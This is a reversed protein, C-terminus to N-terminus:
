GEAAENGIPIFQRVPGGGPEANNGALFDAIGHGTVPRASEQPFAEPLVLM